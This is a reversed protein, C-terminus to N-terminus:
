MGWTEGRLVRSALLEYDKAMREKSYYDSVSNRCSFSTIKDIWAWVAEMEDLSECCFGNHFDVIYEPLCGNTSAIVPTGCMLAELVIIAGAEVWDYGGVPHVLCKAKQILELKQQGGVDGVFEVHAMEKMEELVPWYEPQWRPGAIKVQLELREGLEAVWHVRKEKILSGMYLLYDDRPGAYYPYEEVDLGYYVVPADPYGIFQRQANSIFVPNVPWSITMVQYTNLQPVDPFSRAVLKDHSFDIIVDFCGGLASAVEVFEPESEGAGALGEVTSGMKAIVMVEHNLGRLGQALWNVEREMGGYAEPPTEIGATSVLLINM